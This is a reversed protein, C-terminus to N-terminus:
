QRRPEDPEAALLRALAQAAGGIDHGLQAVAEPVKDQEAGGTAIVLGPSQKRLASVVENAAPVDNATPVAVVVAATGRPEVSAAVWDALPVDAGLYRVDIGRRRAAVAFALLGLEHRSGPALGMVVPAGNGTSAAADYAAALRRSVANSALHEGAVTVRGAAWADGLARLSPFLHSTAATEFRGSAFMLDLLEDLRRADLSAAATVFQDPIDTQALDLDAEVSTTSPASGPGAATLDRQRMAERAAFSSSWGEDILQKMARLLQLDARSYVRYDGATRKPSVIAYRREWARLTAPSIGVQEAVHGISYM